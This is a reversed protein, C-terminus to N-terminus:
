PWRNSLETRSLSRNMDMGPRLYLSAWPPYQPSLPSHDNRNDRLYKWNQACSLVPSTWGTLTSATVHSARAWSASRLHSRDDGPLLTLLGRAIRYTKRDEAVTVLLVGPPPREALRLRLTFPWPGLHNTFLGGAHALPLSRHQPGSVRPHNTVAEHGPQDESASISPPVSPKM